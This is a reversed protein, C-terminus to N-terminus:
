FDAKLDLRNLLLRLNGLNDRMAERVAPTSLQSAPVIVAGGEVEVCRGEAILCNIHRRCTELPVGLSQAIASRSVARRESDPLPRNISAYRDTLAKDNLVHHVNANNIALWIVGRLLDNPFVAHLLAVFRLFYEESARAIHRVRDPM